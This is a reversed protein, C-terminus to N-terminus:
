CGRGGVSLPAVFRCLTMEFHGLAV